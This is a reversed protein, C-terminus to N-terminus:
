FWNFSMELADDAHQLNIAVTQGERQYSAGFIPHSRALEAADHMGMEELTAATREADVESNPVLTWGHAPMWTTVRSRLADFESDAFRTTLSDADPQRELVTGGETLPMLVDPLVTPGAAPPDAAPPDAAPPDAAPAEDTRSGGCACIAALCLASAILRLARTSTSM